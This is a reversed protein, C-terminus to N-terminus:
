VLLDPFNTLLFNEAKKLINKAINLDSIWQGAVAEKVIKDVSEKLDICGDLPKMAIDGGVFFLISIILIFAERDKLVKDMEAPSYKRPEVKYVGDSDQFSWLINQIESLSKRKLLLLQPFHNKLRDLFIQGSVSIMDNDGEKRHM